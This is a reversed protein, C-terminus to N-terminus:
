VRRPPPHCRGHDRRVTAWTKSWFAFVEVVAGPGADVGRRSTGPSSVAHGDGHVLLRVPWRGVEDLRSRQGVGAVLGDLLPRGLDAAERALAVRDHERVVVLPGLDLVDGVV